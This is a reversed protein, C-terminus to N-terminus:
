EYRLSVAPDVRKARRAPVTCALVGVLLVIATVAGLTAPDHPKVGWLQTAILRNLLLSAVIGTALGIAVVLGSQRFVMAVVDSRSAGLAMRIGIERAQRSVSYSIVSYTGIGVLVLGIAAFFGLM